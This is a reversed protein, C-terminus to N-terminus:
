KEPLLRSGGGGATVIGSSWLTTAAVDANKVVGARVLEDVLRGVLHEEGENRGGFESSREASM